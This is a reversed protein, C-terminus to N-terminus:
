KTLILKGQGTRKLRYLVGHHDILVESATGLLRQSDLVPPTANAAAPAPARAPAIRPALARAPDRPQPPTSPLAADPAHPAAPAPKDM